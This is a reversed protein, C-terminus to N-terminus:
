CYIKKFYNNLYSNKNNNDNIIELVWFSIQRIWQKSYKNQRWFMAIMKNFEHIGIRHDKCQIRDM